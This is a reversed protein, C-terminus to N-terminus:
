RSTIKGTMIEEDTLALPDWKFPKPMEVPAGKPRNPDIKFCDLIYDESKESPPDTPIPTAPTQTKARQRAEAQPSKKATPDEERSSSNGGANLQDRASIYLYVM